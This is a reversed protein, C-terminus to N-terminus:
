GVSGDVEDAMELLAFAMLRAGRSPLVISVAEHQETGEIQLLVLDTVGLPGLVKTRGVACSGTHYDSL